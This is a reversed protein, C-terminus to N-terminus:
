KKKTISILKASPYLKNFYAKACTEDVEDIETSFNVGFGLYKVVFRTKDKPVPYDNTYVKKM